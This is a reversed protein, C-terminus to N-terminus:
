KSREANNGENERRRRTSRSDSRGVVEVRWEVDESRMM